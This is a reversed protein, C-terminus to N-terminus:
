STVLSGFEAVAALFARDAAVRAGTWSEPRVGFQEAAFAKALEMSDQLYDHTCRTGEYVFLYFGAASGDSAIEFRRTGYIARLVTKKQSM